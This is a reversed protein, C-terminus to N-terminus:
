PKVLYPTVKIRLTTNRVDYESGGATFPNNTQFLYNLRLTKRATTEVAARKSNWRLGGGIFVSVDHAYHGLGGPFARYFAGDEWRIRGANLSYSLRSRSLDVGIYQSSAGPGIAAGIVQGQQTFGQPVTYSAYFEPLPSGPNKPIQELKTFELEFRLTTASDIRGGWDLGVTFGQGNQPAVLVSRLSAPLAITAWEVHTSLGADPIMWRGFFSYMQDSRRSIAGSSPARSWDFFVDGLHAFIGSLKSAAVVMRAAGITLGTDARLRLTVIGASASRVDNRTDYDFYPSEMLGGIFWYAAVDGLRTRIPERTRAFLRPIGAANDSLILANRLGPGWWQSETSVGVISKGLSVQVHSEGPDVRTYRANGFRLPLDASVGGVHFPSGFQSGYIRQSPLVLFPRNQASFVLPVLQVDVRGLPARFGASAALTLGRGSWIARDNMSEPIRSNWQATFSPDLLVFGGDPRPTTLGTSRILSHDRICSGRLDLAAACQAQARSAIFLIPVLLTRLRLM